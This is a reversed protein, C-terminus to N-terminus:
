LQQERALWGLEILLLDDFGRGLVTWGPPGNRKLHGGLQAIAAVAETITLVANPRRLRLALIAVQSPTLAVTAPETSECRSLSRMLLLRWAIPLFIALAVELAHRSELQRREFSCGSKLARFLEEITWRSRYADIVRAVQEPSDIPENTLLTWHVPSIGDPADTELVDVVGLRLKCKGRSAVDNLELVKARVELKAVRHERAPHIRRAQASHAKRRKSIPVERTLVIEAASMEDSIRLHGRTEQLRETLARDYTARIVFRHGKSALEALLPFADAERDMVHICEVEDGLHDASMEVLEIWRRSENDPDARLSKTSRKGRHESSRVFTSLAGIGLPLRQEGPLVALAVHAFLGRTGSKSLIPGLGERAADGGFTCVTTDHVVLIVGNVQEARARTCEQHPELVAQATVAANNLFRYTGELAAATRTAKPFSASPNAACQGAIQQLRRTRRADGLDAEEFEDEISTASLAREHPYAM